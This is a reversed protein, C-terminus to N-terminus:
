ENTNSGTWFVRSASWPSIRTPDLYWASIGSLSASPSCWVLLQLYFTCVNKRFETVVKVWLLFFLVLLFSNIKKLTWYKIKLGTEEQKLHIPYGPGPSALSWPTPGWCGAWLGESQGTEPPPLTTSRKWRYVMQMMMQLDQQWFM